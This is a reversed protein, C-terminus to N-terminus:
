YEASAAVLHRWEGFNSPDSFSRCTEGGSLDSVVLVIGAPTRSDGKSVFVVVLPEHRAGCLPACEESSFVATQSVNKLNNQTDRKSWSLDEIRHGNSRDGRSSGAAFILGCVCLLLISRTIKRTNGSM